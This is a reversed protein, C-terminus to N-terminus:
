ALPRANSIFFLVRASPALLLILGTLIPITLNDDIKIPLAEIITGILAAPLSLPPNLIYCFLFSSFFCALSGELTKDLNFFLKHRGFIGVLTAFSDGIALVAISLAAIDLPYLLLVLGSSFYFYFAGRYGNGEREFMDIFDRLRRTKHAIFRSYFFVAFSLLISFGGILKGGFLLAFPLIAVGSMHVLQRRIETAKDM